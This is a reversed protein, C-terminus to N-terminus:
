EIRFYLSKGSRDVVAYADKRTTNVRGVATLLFVDSRATLWTHSGADLMDQWVAALEKQLHNTFASVEEFPRKETIRRAETEDIAENFSQLVLADATNINIKGEGYITLYPSIIRYINDSIGRVMQLERLTEFPGNKPCYGEDCDRYDGAEAGFPQTEDDSDIWDIIPDVGNPDLELLEFLRKLQDVRWTVVAEAGTTQSIEVLKNLNIKREEDVIVGSLLGDGLPYDPIPTAWLEDLGDYGNSNRTDEKILGKGASIASRALYFAQLDDRFNGAARLDARAQFDSELIIVVLLFLIVLSLLLAFGRQDKGPQTSPTSGTHTQKKRLRRKM